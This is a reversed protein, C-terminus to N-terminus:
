DLGDQQLKEGLTSPKSKKTSSGQQDLDELRVQGTKLRDRLVANERSRGLGEKVNELNRQFEDVGLASGERDEDWSASMVSYTIGQKSQYPKTTFYCCCCCCCSVSFFTVLICHFFSVFLDAELHIICFGVCDFYRGNEVLCARVLLSVVLIAITSGAVLAPQFEMDKYTAFYWFAVFCGMGGLLPLGVFPLMRAGMRQAVREPIAAAQQEVQRDAELMERVKNLEQNKKEAQQRRMEALARQGANPPAPAPAPVAAVPNSPEESSTTVKEKKKPPEPTAGFGKGSAQLRTTTTTTTTTQLFPLCHRSVSAFSAVGTLCSAWLSLTLFSKM